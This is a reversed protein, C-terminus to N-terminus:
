PKKKPSVYKQIYLIDVLELIMAELEQLQVNEPKVNHQIIDQIIVSVYIDYDYYTTDEQNLFIEQIKSQYINQQEPTMKSLTNKCWSTQDLLFGKQKKEYLINFLNEADIFKFHKSIIAIKSKKEKEINKALEYLLNVVNISTVSNLPCRKLIQQNIDDLNDLISLSYLKVIRRLTIIYDRFNNLFEKITEEDKADYDSLKFTRSSETNM